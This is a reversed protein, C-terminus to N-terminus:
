KKDKNRKKKSKNKKEKEIEAIAEPTLKRIQTTLTLTTPKESEPHILFKTSLVANKKMAIYGILSTLLAGGFDVMLDKMTDVLAAHGILLVGEDTMFKQANVNFLEDCIFEYIEWASGISFSFLFAFLAIFFPSLDVIETKNLLYVVSFGVIALMIASASHLYDDWHPVLYYFSRVEGLYVACYFFILFMIELTYPIFLHFNHRLILPISMAISVGVIMIISLLCDSKTRVLSNTVDSGPAHFYEEIEYGLSILLSLIIFVYLFFKVKEKRNMKKYYEVYKNM